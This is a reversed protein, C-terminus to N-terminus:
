FKIPHSFDIFFFIIDIINNINDMVHKAIKPQEQLFPPFPFDLKTEPGFEDKVPVSISLSM